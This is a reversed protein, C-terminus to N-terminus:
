RLGHGPLRGALAAPVGPRKVVAGGIMVFSVSELVSMDEIPDGPVAIIDALKGAEVTGLRDDWQLLEAGVRTGAQIAEMPKMGAEVFVAM